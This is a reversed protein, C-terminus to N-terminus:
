QRLSQVEWYRGDTRIAGALRKHGAGPQESHCLVCLAVLNEPSNDKPDMNWHHVHILRQTRRDLSCNVGCLACCYGAEKKVRRSISGWDATYASDNSPEPVFQAARPETPQRAQHNSDTLGKSASVRATIWEDISILVSAVIWFVFGALVLGCCDM